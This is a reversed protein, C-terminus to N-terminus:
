HGPHTPGEADDVFDGPMPEGMNPDDRFRRAWHRGDLFHLVRSHRIELVLITAVTAETALMLQGQGAAAGVAAVMFITAATTVGRVMDDGGHIIVGAGIFGVGTVVGALANPANHLALFGVVASGMGVLSFTRDGATSGRLEREFGIVYSLLLALGLRLSLQTRSPDHLAETAAVVLASGPTM